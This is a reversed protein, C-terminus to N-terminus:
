LCLRESLESRFRRRPDFDKLRSRFEDAEGYCSEMVARPLRSDKILNPIGGLKPLLSDLFAIFAPARDDRPINLAFCLGEGSFRLLKRDGGFCKASALTVAVTEVRLYDEVEQLYRASHEWPILAQYEHFGARGFLKFYLQAEQAPFLASAIGVTRERGAWANRLSYARNFLGTTWRNLLGFPLGGRGRPSLRSPTMVSVSSGPDGALFSASVIFGAGFRNGSRAFDHWSYAFDARQAAERLQQVGASVHTSHELLLRVSAGPLPAPQLDVSLIHGTLGYGGCTLDFLRPESERSLTLEGHDPHFLTLGVVQNVFSGDRRHNKGHVDAAVCGGVSIGGHGPQIPLYLEKTSLFRHLEGLTIGSEVRVQGSSSDFDLIRNFSGHDVSVVGDGFSAAAYSLGAGRPVRPREDSVGNSFYRYRDPRQIRAGISVGGDFSMLHAAAEPWQKGM